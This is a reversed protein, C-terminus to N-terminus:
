RGDPISVIMKRKGEDIARYAAQLKGMLRGVAWHNAWVLSMDGEGYNEMLWADTFVLGRPVCHSRYFDSDGVYGVVGQAVLEEVAMSDPGFPSCKYDRGDLISRELDCLVKDITEQEVM